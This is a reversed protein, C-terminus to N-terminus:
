IREMGEVVADLGHASLKNAAVTSAEARNVAEVVLYDRLLEPLARWLGDPGKKARVTVTVRYKAIPPEPTKM